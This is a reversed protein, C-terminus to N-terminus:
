RQNNKVYDALSKLLRSKETSSKVEESQMKEALIQWFREYTLIPEDKHHLQGSLREHCYKAWRLQEDDDLTKTYHRGRYRFFMEELRKDQFYLGLESMNEPSTKHIRSMENKDEPSFFGGSYIMQDPDTHEGELKRSFVDQLKAALGSDNVLLQRHRECIGLDIELREQDEPMLVKLPAVVPCKNLHITKLPIRLEGRPLDDTPTYLRRHIEDASLNLLPESVSALSNLCKFNNFEGLLDKHPTPIYEYNNKKAFEKL